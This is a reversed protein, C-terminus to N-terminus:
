QCFSLDCQELLELLKLGNETKKIFLHRSGFLIDPSKPQQYSKNLQNALVFELQKINASNLVLFDKFIANKRAVNFDLVVEGDSFSNSYVTSNISDQIIFFDPGKIVGIGEVYNFSKAKTFNFLSLSCASCPQAFVIKRSYLKFISGVKKVEATTINNATSVKIIDEAKIINLGEDMGTILWDLKLKPTEVYVCRNSKFVPSDLEQLKTSTAFFGSKKAFFSLYNLHDFILPVSNMTECIVLLTRLNGAALSWGLKASLFTLGFIIVDFVIETSNEVIDAESSYKNLRFHPPLNNSFIDHYDM